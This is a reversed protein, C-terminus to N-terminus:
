RRLSSITLRDGNRRGEVMVTLWRPAGSEDSLSSRFSDNRMQQRVVDNGDDDLVFLHGDTHIAFQTTFPSAKCGDYQDGEDVRKTGISRGRTAEKAPTRRQRTERAASAVQTSESHRSADAIAPCNADMLVGVASVTAPDAAAAPISLSLLVAFVSLFKMDTQCLVVKVALETVTHQRRVWRSFM